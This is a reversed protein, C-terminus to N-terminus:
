KKLIELIGNLIDWKNYIEVILVIALYVLFTKKLRRKCMEEAEDINDRRSWVIAVIFMSRFVFIMGLVLIVICGWNM